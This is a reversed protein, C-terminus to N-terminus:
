RWARLRSRERARLPRGLLDRHVAEADVAAVVADAPVLGADTEVGREPAASASAARAARTARPPSRGLALAIRRAPTGAAARRRAGRAAARAGRGARLARRASAVRGLRARRLGALALAAPARRPDRRRVDRLARHGDRLRPDATHARALQRLTWWPQVARSRARRRGRTAPGRAARRGRPRAPSCRSRRRWMRACTALFGAWEAGAGPRWAELAGRSREPDASLDFGSGDAFRYRTVPEVPLLELEDALPAGTDAFLAELVWPMTLLSPGSDWTFGGRAVRGVKGGAAPGPRSCSSPTASRRSGSAPQSGASAPASSASRAGDGGWRRPPSRAWRWRARPPSGRAAGCSRTPSRRAPGRGRTSRSRRTTARTRRRRRRAAVLARVRRRGDGVLRPLEIGARGRLPRRRAM